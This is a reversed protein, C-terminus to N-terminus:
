STFYSAFGFKIAWLCFKSDYTYKMELNLQQNINKALYKKIKELSCKQSDYQFKVKKEM